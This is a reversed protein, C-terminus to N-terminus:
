CRFNQLFARVTIAGGLAALGSPSGDCAMRVFPHIPAPWVFDAPGRLTAVGDLFHAVRVDGTRVAGRCICDDEDDPCHGGPSPDDCPGDEYAALHALPCAGVTGCLFPCALLFAALIATLYSRM